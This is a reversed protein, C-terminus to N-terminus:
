ESGDYLERVVPHDFLVSMIRDFQELAQHKEELNRNSKLINITEIGTDYIWPYQNKLLGFAMQAGVYGSDESLLMGMLDDLIMSSQRRMRRMGIPMRQKGSREILEHLRNTMEEYKAVSVEDLNRVLKQNIRSLELIEELIDHVKPTQLEAGGDADQDSPAIDRLEELQGRLTPYWVDFAKNLREDTLGNKDCARNLTTVLKKLDEEEFITSQFQLIPGDVESRKIDFLFPTVFAKDMTKSLAGAEFTLWPANINERTVCLVGFKSDYLEKAIDTSWRAGKDIDESSVYPEIEQIVSPLWDRFVLAVKHSRSGSWSLFVKM